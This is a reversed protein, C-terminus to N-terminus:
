SSAQPSGGRDGCVAGRSQGFGSSAQPSSGCWSGAGEGVDGVEDAEMEAPAAMARRFEHLWSIHEPEIQRFRKTELEICM